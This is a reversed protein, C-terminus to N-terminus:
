NILVGTNIKNFFLNHQQLKLRVKISVSSVHFDRSIIIFSMFLINLEKMLARLYCPSAQDLETQVRGHCFCKAEM